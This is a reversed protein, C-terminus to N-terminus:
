RKFVHVRIYYVTLISLYHARENQTTLSFLFHSDTHLTALLLALVIGPHLPFQFYTQLM